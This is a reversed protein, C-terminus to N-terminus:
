GSWALGGSRLSLSGTMKRQMLAAVAVAPACDAPCRDDGTAAAEFFSNFDLYQRGLREALIAALFRGVGAGVLPVDHDLETRSLLQTCADMLTKIQCEQLFSAVDYWVESNGQEVDMGVMRALRRESAASTKDGADAAPFQDADEPLKNLVRYVDASTAFQEAMLGIWEGDIPVRKALTMVPTRVIGTYVLEEYRLRDQDTQGRAIVSGQAFPILDTTTSGIDVLLGRSMYASLWSATALWNASAIQATAQSADQPPLFGESGAFIMVRLEGFKDVIVDIISQVGNNRSTFNDTMEGTMTVVHLDNTTVGLNGAVQDLAAILRDIGQWLPCPMQLVRRLNGDNDILAVKLHAGGIDWGLICDTRV